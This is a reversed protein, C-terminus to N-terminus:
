HHQQSHHIYCCEDMDVERGERMGTYDIDSKEWPEQQESTVAIGFQKPLPTTWEVIIGQLPISKPTYPTSLGILYSYLLVPRGWWAKPTSMRATVYSQDVSTCTIYGIVDLIFIFLNISMTYTMCYFQIHVIHISQTKYISFSVKNQVINIKTITSM